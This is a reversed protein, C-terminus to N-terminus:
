PIFEFAVGIEHVGGIATTGFLNGNNLLLRSEPEGGDGADQFDYLVNEQWTGNSPTLEFVTGYGYGGLFTQSYLNGASDFIPAANPNCGDTGNFQILSSEQWGSASPSLEFINGCNTQYDGGLSNSGYLNGNHVTLGDIPSQGDTCVTLSCFDYLTTAQWSNKVQRVEFVSGYENLNPNPGAEAYITGERDIALPSVTQGKVGADGLAYITEIKWQDGRPSVVRFVTGLNHKGGSQTSGYYNGQRDAVLGPNPTAGDLKGSFSYVVHEAWGTTTKSIEYLTGKDYAGGNITAGYINGESDITLFGGGTPLCGDSKNGNSQFAWIVSENYSGASPALQLVVGCGTGGFRTATYLNGSRDAAFGMIPISGDPGGSFSHLVAYTQPSDASSLTSLALIALALRSSFVRCANM